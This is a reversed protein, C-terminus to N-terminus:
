EAVAQMVFTILSSQSGSHELVRRSGDDRMSFAGDELACGIDMQRHGELSHLAAAFPSGFPPNWGSRRGLFGGIIRQPDKPDYTGAVYPIPVSTRDLRRVSEVKEAAYELNGKDVSQKVEIAAYVSEAPIYIAGGVEFLLPSFHRDHIVIDIQQSLAGHVDVVFAKAVGYRSPLLNALMGLWNLEADDGKTGPHTAIDGLNLDSRLQEQRLLFADALNFQCETM